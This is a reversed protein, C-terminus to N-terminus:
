RKGFYIFHIRDLSSDCCKIALEVSVHAFCVPEVEM